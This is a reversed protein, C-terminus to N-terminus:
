GAKTGLKELIKSLRFKLENMEHRYKREAISGAEKQGELGAIRDILEEKRRVLDERGKKRSLAEKHLHLSYSISWALFASLALIIFWTHAGMATPVDATQISEDQALLLLLLKM